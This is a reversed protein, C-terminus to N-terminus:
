TGNLCWQVIYWQFVMSVGNEIGNSTGSKMPWIAWRAKKPDDRCVIRKVAAPAEGTSTGFIRNLGGPSRFSPAFDTHLGWDSFLCTSYVMM